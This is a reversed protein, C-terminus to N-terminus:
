KSQSFCIYPAIANAFIPSDHCFGNTNNLIAYVYLDASPNTITTISINRISEAHFFTWDICEGPLTVIGTYNGNKLEM